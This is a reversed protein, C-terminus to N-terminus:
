KEVRPFLSTQPRQPREGLVLRISDNVISKGQELLQSAREPTTADTYIRIAPETGSARIMLWADDPFVRKFGDVVVDRAGEPVPALKMQRFVEEMIRDKDPDDVRIAHKGQVFRPLSEALEHLGRRERAMIELLRIASYVGDSWPFTRAFYYKGSEEYAFVGGASKLAKVIEPQGIKCYELRAGARRCIWEILGSSSVPAVCLDDPKLEAHAFIAGAADESVTQGQRDVFLVRDADVDLCIGLDLKMVKVISRAEEVTDARPESPRGPIPQQSANISVVECGYRELLERAAVSACGNAPDLLVRFGRGSILKRDARTLLDTFYLDLPNSAQSISGVDDPKVHYLPGHHFIEEVVDTADFPAASGDPLLLMLGIRDYSMHSGTIMVGGDAKIMRLNLAFAGSPLVGYQIVDHGSAAIGAAVASALIQAGFRPDHGVGIRGRHRGTRHVWTGFAQAVRLCLEPTIERNTVGRIGSTGFLRKRMAM